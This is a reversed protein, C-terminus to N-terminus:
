TNLPDEKYLVKIDPKKVPIISDKNSTVGTSVM